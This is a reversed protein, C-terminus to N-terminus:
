KSARVMALIGAKIAQPLAPWANLITTLESDLIDAESEAEIPNQVQRLGIAGCPTVNIPEFGEGDAKKAKKRNARFATKLVSV